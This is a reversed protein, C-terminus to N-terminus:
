LPPGPRGERRGATEEASLAVMRIPSGKVCVLNKAAPTRPIVVTLLSAMGTSMSEAPWYPVEHVTGGAEFRYPEREHHKSVARVGHESLFETEDLMRRLTPDATLRSIMNPLGQAMRGEDDTVHLMGRMAADRVAYTNDGARTIIKPTPTAPSCAMAVALRRPATTEAVSTRGAVLSCTSLRPPVKTATISSIRAAIFSTLCGSRFRRFASCGTSRAIGRRIATCFKM